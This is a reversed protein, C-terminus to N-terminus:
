LSALYEEVGTVLDDIHLDNHTQMLLDAAEWDITIQRGLFPMQTWGRPVEFREGCVACELKPFDPYADEQNVM